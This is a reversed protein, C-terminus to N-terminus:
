SLLINDREKLLESLNQSNNNHEIKLSQNIRSIKDKVVLVSNLTNRIKQQIIWDTILNDLFYDTFKNLEHFNLIFRMNKEGLDEMEKTFHDLSRQTIALARSAESLKTRKMMEAYGSQGRGQWRGWDMAQRLIQSLGGLNKFAHEASEIAETLEKGLVVANDYKQLVLAVEGRRPNGSQLLEAQREKKLSEVETKIKPYDLSKKQLLDKEYELVEIEERLANYKLSIALYEQRETELQKEKDGLIKYFLPRIGKNELKEVDKEEKKLQVTIKELEQYQKALKSKVEELHVNVRKLSHFEEIKSKLQALISIDSM